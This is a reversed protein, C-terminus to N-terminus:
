VWLNPGHGCDQKLYIDFYSIAVQYKVFDFFCCDGAKKERTVKGLMGWTM